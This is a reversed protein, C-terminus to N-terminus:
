PIIIVISKFFLCVFSCIVKNLLYCAIVRGFECARRLTKM